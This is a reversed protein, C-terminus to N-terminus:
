VLDDDCWTVLHCQKEQEFHTALRDDIKSLFIKSFVAILENSTNKAIIVQDENLKAM